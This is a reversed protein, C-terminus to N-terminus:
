DEGFAEAAEDVDDSNIEENNPKIYVKILKFPRHGKTKPEREEAFEFGVFDGMAAQEARQICGDKTVSIGVNTRGEENELVYIHQDPYDGEGEQYRKDVLKGAYKDGVEDFSAWNSEAENEENFLEDVNAM